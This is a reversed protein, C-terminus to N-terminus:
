LRGRMIKAWFSFCLVLLLIRLQSSKLVNYKLFSERTKVKAESARGRGEESSGALKVRVKNVKKAELGRWARKAVM